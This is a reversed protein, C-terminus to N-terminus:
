AGNGFIVKTFLRASKMLALNERIDGEGKGVNGLGDM